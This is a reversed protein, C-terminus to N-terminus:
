LPLHPLLMYFSVQFTVLDQSGLSGGLDYESDRFPAEARYPAKGFKHSDGCFNVDRELTLALLYLSELLQVARNVNEDTPEPPDKYHFNKVEAGPPQYKSVKASLKNTPV